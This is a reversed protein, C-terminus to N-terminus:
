VHAVSHRTCLVQGGPHSIATMAVPRKGLENIESQELHDRPPAVRHRKGM